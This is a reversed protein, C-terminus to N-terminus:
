EEAPEAKKKDRKKEKPATVAEAIKRVETYIANLLEQDLTLEPEKKKNEVPADHPSEVIKLPPATSAVVNIQDKLAALEKMLAENQQQGVSDPKKVFLDKIDM